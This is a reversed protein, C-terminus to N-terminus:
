GKKAAPKSSEEPTANAKPEVIQFWIVEFVSQQQNPNAKYYMDVKETIQPVTMGDLAKVIKNVTTRHKPYPGSLQYEVMAMNLIGLVYARKETETAKAWHEGNPMLWEKKTSTAPQAPQSEAPKAAPPAPEAAHVVSWGALNATLGLSLLVITLRRKTPM